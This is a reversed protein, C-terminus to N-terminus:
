ASVDAMTRVGVCEGGKVYVRPVRQRIGVLVEYTNTEMLEALESVSPAGLTADGLIHVTDGVSAVIDAPLEVVLQDMSVRGIV